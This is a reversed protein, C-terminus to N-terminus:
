FRSPRVSRGPPSTCGIAESQPLIPRHQSTNPVPSQQPTLIPLIQCLGRKATQSAPTKHKKSYKEFFANYKKTEEILKAGKDYNEPLIYFKLPIMEGTISKVSDEILRYPAANFVLSYNAIPNSM